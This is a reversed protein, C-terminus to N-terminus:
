RTHGVYMVCIVDCMHCWENSTVYSMVCIFDCMHCWVYLTVCLVDCMVDSIVDGMHCWVYLTVCLVDFMVDSIVDCMHCWVHLSRIWGLINWTNCHAVDGKRFSGVSQLEIRLRAVAGSRVRGCPCKTFGHRLFYLMLLRVHVVLVDHLTGWPRVFMHVSLVLSYYVFVCM